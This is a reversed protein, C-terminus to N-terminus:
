NERANDDFMAYLQDILANVTVPFGYPDIFRAILVIDERAKELDYKNKNSLAQDFSLEFQSLSYKLFARIKDQQSESLYILAM